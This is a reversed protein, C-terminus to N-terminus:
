RDSSMQLYRSEIFEMSGDIMCTLESMLRNARYRSYSVIVFDIVSGSISGLLIVAAIYVILM